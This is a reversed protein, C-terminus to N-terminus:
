DPQLPLLRRLTDEPDPSLGTYATFSLLAMHRFLDFGTLTRAGATRAAEIFQTNVPTYVADFVWTPRSTLPQPFACGPYDAMGLPTANVLGDAGMIAPEIEHESLVRANSGILSVLDRARDVNTDWIALESAGLRKLAPGLARAVGGAGAMVTKGPVANGFQARWASLFGSFDTNHGVLPPGFVLTNAAGLEQAEPHMATGALTAADPKWPHTVTVGNWGNARCRAVTAEFDFDPFEASDILTFEFELGARDCMLALAERLRSRSIHAGILGAQLKSLTVTM